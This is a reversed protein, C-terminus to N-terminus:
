SRRPAALYRRCFNHDCANSISLDIRLTREDAFMCCRLQRIRAYSQRERFLQRHNSNIQLYWLLGQERTWVRTMTGALILTAARTRRLLMIPCRRAVSSYCALYDAARRCIFPGSLRVLSAQEADQDNRIQGRSVRLQRGREEGYQPM